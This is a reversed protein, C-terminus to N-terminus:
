RPPLSFARRLPNTSPGQAPPPPPQKRKTLRTPIPPVDWGATAAAMMVQHGWAGWALLEDEVDKLRALVEEAVPLRPRSLVIKLVGGIAAIIGAIGMCWATVVAADAGSTM